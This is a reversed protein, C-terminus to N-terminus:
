AEFYPKETTEIVYGPSNVYQFVVPISPENPGGIMEGAVECIVEREEPQNSM